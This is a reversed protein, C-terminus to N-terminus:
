SSLWAIFRSVEQSVITEAQSAETGRKSLNEQVVAQLDDINYLFVQELDGANSEVDRPVAIHIIFLPRQRRARMTQEIMARSIIPVSSGTATILIDAEALATNMSEWPMATG